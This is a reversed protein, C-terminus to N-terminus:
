WGLRRKMINANRDENFRGGGSPNSNSTTFTASGQSSVNVHPAINGSVTVQPPAVNVNTSNQLRINQLRQNATNFGSVISGNVMEQGAAAGDTLQQAGSSLTTNINGQATLSNDVLQQGGNNLSEIMSNFKDMGGGMNRNEALKDILGQAGGDFGGYVGDNLSQIKSDIGTLYGRLADVDKGKAVTEHNSNITSLIEQETGKGQQVVGLTSKFNSDDNNIIEDKWKSWGVSATSVYGAIGATILTAPNTLVGRAGGGKSLGGGGSGPPAGKTGGKGGAGGNVAKGYVNVINANITSTKGMLGDLGKGKKGKKLGMSELIFEGVNIAAKGTKLATSAARLSLEIAKIVAGSVLLILGGKALGEALKAPDELRDPLRAVLEDFMKNSKLLDNIFGIGNEVIHMPFEILSDGWDANIFNDSIAEGIQKFMPPLTKGIDIGDLIGNGVAEVINGTTVNGEKRFNDASSQVSERFKGKSFGDGSLYGTLQEAGTKILPVMNDLFKIQTAQWAGGLIDLQYKGSEAIIDHTAEVAGDSNKVKKYMQEVASSGYYVKGTKEGTEKDVEEYKAQLGMMMPAMGAAGFVRSILPMAEKKNWFDEPATGEKKLLGQYDEYSKVNKYKPNIFGNNIMTKELSKIIEPYEKLQKKDMDFFSDDIGLAEYYSKRKPYLVMENGINSVSRLGHLFDQAGQAASMGQDRSVMLATLSSDFSQGYMKARGSLEGIAHPLEEVHLLSSNLAVSLKDTIQNSNEMSINFGKAASIIMEAAQEPVADVAESFYTTTDMLAKMDPANSIGGQGLIVGMDMIETPNFGVRLNLDKLVYDEIQKRVDSSVGMRSQMVHSKYDFQVANNMGQFALAGGAVAGIAGVNQLNRQISSTYMNFKYMSNALSDMKKISADLGRNFTSWHKGLNGMNRNLGNFSNQIGKLSRSALDKVGVVIEVKHNRSAM